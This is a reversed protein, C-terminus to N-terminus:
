RSPEGFGDMAIGANNIVFDIGDGHTQKLHEAFAEISQKSTIDLAAYKIESLGGDATLAKATKLQQDEHLERVAADGRGKDRATLYILLKGNNLPCKPYQL